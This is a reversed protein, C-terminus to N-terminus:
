RGCSRRKKEPEAPTKPKEPTTDEKIDDDKPTTPEVVPDKPKVPDDKPLPTVDKGDEVDKLRQEELRIKEQIEALRKKEALKKAEEEEELRKKEAEEIADALEEEYAMNKPAIGVQIYNKHHENFPTLDYVILYKKLIVNGIIWL